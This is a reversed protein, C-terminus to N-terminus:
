GGASAPPARAAELIEDRGGLAVAVPREVGGDDVVLLHPDLDLDPGPLHVGLGLVAEGGVPGILFAFSSAALGLMGPDVVQM